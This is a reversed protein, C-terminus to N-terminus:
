TRCSSERQSYARKSTSTPPRKPVNRAPHQDPGAPLRRPTQRHRCRMLKLWLAGAATGAPLVCRAPVAGGRAGGRHTRSAAALLRCRCGVVAAARAGGCNQYHMDLAAALGRAGTGVDHPNGCEHFGVPTTKPLKGCAMLQHQQARCHHGRLILLGPQSCRCGAGHAACVQGSFGVPHKLAAGGRAPGDERDSSGCRIEGASAVM